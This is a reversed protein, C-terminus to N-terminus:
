SYLRVFADSYERCSKVHSHDTRASATKQPIMPLPSVPAAPRGDYLNQQVVDVAVLPVAWRGPLALACISGSDHTRKGLTM